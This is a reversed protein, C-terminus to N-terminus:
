RFDGNEDINFDLNQNAGSKEQLKEWTEQLVNRTLKEYSDRLPKYWKFFTNPMRCSFEDIFVNRVRSQGSPLQWHKYGKAVRQWPEDKKNKDLIRVNIAEPFERIKRLIFKPSPTTFILSAIRTGIVNLEQLFAVLFPDYWKLYFLWLGADDWILFPIREINKKEMWEMKRFFQKPHFIIYHKLKDWAEKTDLSYLQQLVEAGTKFAYASKGVRLPGYVILLNFGEPSGEGHRWANLVFYTSTLPM